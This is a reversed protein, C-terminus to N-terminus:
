KRGVKTRYDEIIHTIDGGAPHADIYAELRAYAELEEPGPKDSSFGRSFWVTGGGFAGIIRGTAKNYLYDMGGQSVRKGVKDLEEVNLVIGSVRWVTVAPDLIRMFGANDFRPEVTFQYRPQVKDAAEERAKRSEAKAALLMAELQEITYKTETM